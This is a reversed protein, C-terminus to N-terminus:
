RDRVSESEILVSSASVISEWAADTLSQPDDTYAMLRNMVEAGYSAQRNLEANGSYVKGNNLGVLFAAATTTGLDIAM